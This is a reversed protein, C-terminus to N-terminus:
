DELERCDYGHQGLLRIAELPEMEKSVIRLIRDDDDLAFNWRGKGVFNNLAPALVKVDEGSQVSTAFVLVHHNFTQHHIEAQYSMAASVQM